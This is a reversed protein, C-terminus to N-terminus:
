IDSKNSSSLTIRTPIMLLWVCFFFSENEQWINTCPYETGFVSWGIVLRVFLEIYNTLDEPQGKEIM